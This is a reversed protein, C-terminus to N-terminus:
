KSLRELFRVDKVKDSRYFAIGYVNEDPSYFVIEDFFKKSLWIFLYMRM